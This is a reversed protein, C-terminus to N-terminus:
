DVLTFEKKDFQYTYAIRLDLLCQVRCIVKFVTILCFIVKLPKLMTHKEGYFLLGVKVAVVLGEANIIYALQARRFKRVYNEGGLTTINRRM